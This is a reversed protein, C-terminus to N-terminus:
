CNTDFVPFTHLHPPPPIGLPTHTPTDRPLSFAVVVLSHGPLWPADRM